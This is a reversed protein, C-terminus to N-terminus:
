WEGVGTGSLRSLGPIAPESVWVESRSWSLGVKTIRDPIKTWWWVSGGTPAIPLSAYAVTTNKADAEPYSGGPNYPITTTRRIIPAYVTYTTSGYVLRKLLDVADSPWSSTHDAVWRLLAGEYSMSEAFKRVKDKWKLDLDSYTPHRFVSIEFPRSDTEITVVAEAALLLAGQGMGNKGTPRLTVEVVTLDDVTEGILPKESAMTAHDGVFYRRRTQSLYRYVVEPSTRVEAILDNNFWSM